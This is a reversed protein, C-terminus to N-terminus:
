AGLWPRLAIVAEFTWGDAALPRGSMWGGYPRLARALAGLGRGPEPSPRSGTNRLVLQVADPGPRRLSVEFRPTEDAARRRANDVAHGLAEALLGRPCFVALDELEEACEVAAAAGRAAAVARVAEGIRAPAANVLDVLLAPAGSGTQHAAFLARYWWGIRELLERRRLRWAREEPRHPARVLDHLQEGLALLGAGGTDCLELFRERDERGLLGAAYDGALVERLAPLCALVREEALRVCERLDAEAAAARDRSPAALQLDEVFDRVRLLGSAHRQREPSACWDGALRAWASRPDDVRPRPPLEALFILQRVVHAYDEVLRDDWSAGVADLRDRCQELGTRLLAPEAPADHAPRRALRYAELCLQDFVVPEDAGLEVLVPLLGAFREPAAAALVMVSQARLWPPEPAPNGLEDLCCLALLERAAAFRLPPLRLWEQEAALLRTLGRRSWTTDPPSQTLAGLRDLVEQRAATDHLARRLLGRWRLYDTGDDGLVPVGFQDAPADEFVEDRRRPRLLGRLRGAHRRVREPAEGLDAYKERTACLGCEHADLGGISTASIYRVVVPVDSGRMSRGGVAEPSVASISGLLGRDHEPLQDLLVVAVIREAGATLAHRILQQLTAGTRAAFDVILVTRPRPGREPELPATLWGAGSGARHFALPRGVRHGAATLRSWAALALTGANEHAYGPHWVQIADEARSPDARHHVRALGRQVTDLVADMVRARADERRFLRDLDIAAGAHLHRAHEIHGLRLAGWPADPQPACWSLLEEESMPLRDPARVAAPRLSLPDIDQPPAAAAERHEAELDVEALAIVPIERNLVRIRGRKARADVVCAIAVPEAHGVIDAVARRVTNETLILDACLVVRAGRPVDGATPWGGPDLESGVPYARDGLALCESLQGALRPPCTHTRAVMVPGRGQPLAALEAEVTRALAFAAVDFGVTGELLAAADIWRNTLALTPSRFLGRRVGAGGRVAAASLERQAADALTGLVHSPSLLLVLSEGEVTFLQKQVRAARDFDDGSGGAELWRKRVEAVPLVGGAATLLELAARLPAPGGYWLPKGHSGVVLLPRQQRSGRGGGGSGAPERDAEAVCAELVQWGLDPFVAAVATRETGAALGALVQRVARRMAGTGVPQPVAMDGASVTVVVGAPKAGLGSGTVNALGRTRSVAAAFAARDAESLGLQPDLTCGVWALRHPRHLAPHGRWYGAPASYKPGVPVLAEFLTDPRGGGGAFLRLVRSGEPGAPVAPGAPKGLWPLCDRDLLQGGVLVRPGDQPAGPAQPGALRAANGILEALVTEGIARADSAALGLDGLGQELALYRASERLGAGEVPQLWQLPLLRRRYGLPEVVQDARGPGLDGSPTEDVDEGEGAPGAGRVRVADAPWHPAEQFGAQRMFARVQGRRGARHRTQRARSWTDPDAGGPRTERETDRGDQESGLDHAPLTVTAGAGAAVAADLLLLAKALVGFEVYEVRGFDLHTDGHVAEGPRGGDGTPPAGPADFEADWAAISLVPPFRFETMRWEDCETDAGTTM